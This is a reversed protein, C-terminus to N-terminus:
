VPRNAKTELEALHPPYSPSAFCLRPSSIEATWSGQLPKRSSSQILTTGCACLFFGMQNLVCLQFLLCTEKCHKKLHMLINLRSPNQGQAILDSSM